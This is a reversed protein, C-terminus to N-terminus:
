SRGESRDIEFYRGSLVYGIFYNVRLILNERYSIDLGNVKLGIVAGG